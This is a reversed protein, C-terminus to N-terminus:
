GKRTKDTKLSRSVYLFLNLELIVAICVIVLLFAETYNTNM